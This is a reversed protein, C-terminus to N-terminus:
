GQRFINTKGAFKLEEKTFVGRFIAPQKTYFGWFQDGYDFHWWESPLNTFGAKIMAFYLLRRNDRVLKYTGQEFYATDTMETFQDFDTGMQLEQGNADIVTVDVAGGTTHVPPVVRDEVPVSVFKGVFEKKRDEKWKELGFNKVITTAYVDYLEKQLAFPRWADLIKLRYGKPLNKTAEVLKDYVEKRVLCHKEANKMGLLPYQLGVELFENNEVEVFYSDVFKVGTFGDPKGVKPIAIDMM